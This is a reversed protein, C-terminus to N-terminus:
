LQEKKTEKTILITEKAIFEVNSKSIVYCESGRLKHKFGRKYEGETFKILENAHWYDTDEIVHGIYKVKKTRM